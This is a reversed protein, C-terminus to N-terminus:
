CITVLRAGRAHARLLAGRAPGPLPAEVPLWGPIVVTGATEIASPGHVVAIAYGASTPVLGPTETCVAFEYHQPVGVRATGFVEMACGLEFTSQVPRVPAVVRHV